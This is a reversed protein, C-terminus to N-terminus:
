KGGCMHVLSVYRTEYFICIFIDLIIDAMESQNLLAVGKCILCWKLHAINDLMEWGEMGPIWCRTKHHISGDEFRIVM